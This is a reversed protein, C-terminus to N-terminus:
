YLWEKYYSMLWPVIAFCYGSSISSKFILDQSSNMSYSLLVMINSITGYPFYYFQWLTSLRILSLQLQNPWGRQLPGPLIKLSAITQVDSSLLSSTSWSWSPQSCYLSLHSSIFYPHSYRILCPISMTSLAKHLNKKYRLANTTTTFYPIWRKTM